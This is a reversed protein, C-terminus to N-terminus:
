TQALYKGINLNQLPYRVFTHIKNNSDDFTFRKLQIIIVRPLPHRLSTKQKAQTMTDFKQCYYDGDLTDEEFFFSLLDELLLCKQQPHLKPLPLPLPLFTTREDTTDETKCLCCTVRSQTQIHFLKEIITSSESIQLENHLANILANMFENSDHQRFDTFIQATQSVRYKIEKPTVSSYKGSWISRILDKYAQTVPTISNTENFNKFYNTLDPINSLCQLASNM